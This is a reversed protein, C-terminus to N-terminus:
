KKNNERHAKFVSLIFDADESDINYPELGKRLRFFAKTSESDTEISDINNKNTLENVPVDFGMLWAESVHLAQALKYVRDQKPEFSGKIYQSIASKPIGTSKSLETQTMGIRDLAIRIREACSQKSM